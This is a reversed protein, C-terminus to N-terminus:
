SDVQNDLPTLCKEAIVSVWGTLVSEVICASTKNPKVVHGHLYVTENRRRKNQYHDNIYYMPKNKM